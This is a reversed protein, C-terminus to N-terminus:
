NWRRHSQPHQFATGPLLTTCWVSILRKTRPEWNLWLREYMFPGEEKENAHNWIAAQLQTLVRGTRVYNRCFTEKFYGFYLFFIDLEGVNHRPAKRVKFHQRAVYHRLSDTRTANLDPPFRMSLGWQNIKKPNVNKWASFQQKAQDATLYLIM